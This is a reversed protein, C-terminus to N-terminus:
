FRCSREAEKKSSFVPLTEEGSEYDIQLVEAWDNTSGTIIWLPGRGLGEGNQLM